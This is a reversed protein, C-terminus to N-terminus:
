WPIQQRDRFFGGTPGEPPLTAAWVITDAGEDVGRPANPGGMDTRVWGPCAVNVHLGKRMAEPDRALVRAFANLGVKSVAYASGPWGRAVYQSNEVDRVFSDMLETLGARTLAADEFKSRLEPGLCSLEGHGSSVMVINGQEAMSPLLAMTVNMAGFFNVALTRQAVELGFGDLSVGANNVLTHIPKGATHLHEAFLAISQEQTVDLHEPIVDLGLAKLKKAARECMERDRGTLVVQLGLRGLQRCTERGLGRNAGTVVAIRKEQGSM